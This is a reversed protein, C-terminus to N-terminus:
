WACPKKNLLATAELDAVCNSEVEIGFCRTAYPSFPEIAARGPLGWYKPRCGYLKSNIASLNPSRRVEDSLV